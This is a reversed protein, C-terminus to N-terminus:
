FLEKLQILCNIENVKSQNHLIKKPNFYIAQMGVAESGIIDAEIDDGIMVSEKANTNAKNLAYLFIKKNPKKYGVQESTTITNFYHRINSNKLKIHQVEQFGNTIIHLTYKSKLYTLVENTFSFLDTKLPSQEIYRLGIRNALVSDNVGYDQLTLLFRESRLRNKSIKDDRYLGWLRENHIKYKNIFDDSTSIGLSNLNFFNFLETLTSHSNKEFDWLTRDLDFFFHKKM